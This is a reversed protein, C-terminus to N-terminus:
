RDDPLADIRTGAELMARVAEDVGPTTHIRRTERARLFVLWSEAVREGLTREVALRYLCLQPTYVRELEDLRSNNAGPHDTKFDVLIWGEATRFLLDVVGQLIIPEGNTPAGAEHGELRITFPRERQITTLSRRLRHGLADNLFWAISDLPVAEADAPALLLESVLRDREESLRRGGSSVAQIDFLALFRHTAIGLGRGAVIPAHNWDAPLWDTAADAQLQPPRYPPTERDRAADHARKVETVSVKARVAPRPPEAALAVLRDRAALLEDRLAAQGAIDEEPPIEHGLQLAGLSSEGHITASVIGDAGILGEPPAGAMDFCEHLYLAVWDAMSRAAGVTAPSPRQGRPTVPTARWDALKGVVMSMYVARGARTLAVYLLRLKEALLAKRAGARVAEHREAVPGEDEAPKIALGHPRTYILRTQLSKENFGTGLGPLFVVPFELGKSGHITMIRVADAGEALPVPAEAGTREGELQDLFDLFEALGAHRMAGFATARALLYQINTRRQDGNPRVAALELLHLEDVLRQVFTPLSEAAATQQWHDIRAIAAAAAPAIPNAADAAARALLDVFPADADLDRLALLADETWNFAPGRLTALLATDDMPNDICALLSRLEGVETADLVNAARDLYVPVGARRLARVLDPMLSRSQVLVAIDRWPPGLERVRRALLVTETDHRLRAEAADAAARELLHIEVFPERGGEGARRGPQLEHGAAYDMGATERQMLLHFFRNFEALLAPHSRFNVNLDLRSDWPLDDPSALPSSRDYRDLFLRPEAQRFAYISQKSDGVVFLNGGEGDAAPRALLTLVAEQMENTDQYEDVLIYLYRDRYIRLLREGAGDPLTLLRRALPEFHAFTLQRRAIMSQMFDRHWEVGLVRAALVADPDPPHGDLPAATRAIFATTDATSDLFAHLAEIETVLSQFATQPRWNDLLRRLLDRLAPQTEDEIADGVRRELYARRALSAEEPSLVEFGPALGLLPAHDRVMDLCFSSITSIPAAPLRILQEQLHRHRPSGIECAAIAANIHNRVRERLEAAAARTFTVVIMQDIHVPQTPHDILGLLRRVMTSTKGSGAGASVILNRDTVAVALRQAPTLTADAASSTPGSM